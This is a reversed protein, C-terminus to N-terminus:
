SIVLRESNTAIPAWIACRWCQASHTRAPLPGALQLVHSPGPCGASSVPSTVHALPCCFCSPTVHHTGYSSLDAIMDLNESFSMISKRAELLRSTTHGGDLSLTSQELTRYSYLMTASLNQSFLATTLVWSTHWPESLIVCLFLM